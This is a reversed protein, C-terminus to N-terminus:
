YPYNVFMEIEPIVIVSEKQILSDTTYIDIYNEKLERTGKSFIGHTVYLDATSNDVFKIKEALGNFTGGGDCIDDVVLYHKKGPLLKVYFDSLKGTMIDRVKGGEYLPLDLAQAFISARNWAGKDPSIIGDYKNKDLKKAVRELDLVYCRDILAPTVLSHPDLTAIRDFSISNIINSVSKLTFLFDGKPNIRDQRGGPVFPLILNAIGRGRERLANVLMWANVLTSVETSRILMDAFEPLDYTIKSDKMFTKILPSGDPYYEVIVEIPSKGPSLLFIESSPLSM